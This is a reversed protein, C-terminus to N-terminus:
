ASLARGRTVDFGYIWDFRHRITAPALQAALRVPAYSGLAPLSRGHFFRGNRRAAELIRGGRVAMAQEYAAYNGTTALSWVSAWACEMAFSAGQAMFPPMPVAADGIM